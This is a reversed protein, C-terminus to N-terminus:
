AQAFHGPNLIGRTAVISGGPFAYANVYTANVVHFNYPMHPRHTRSAMKKGVKDVYANLKKDQIVGYDASFQFPAYQKDIQIEEDESVLMLQRKGTVPDTACGVVFGAAVMSSFWIFERRTMKPTNTLRSANRHM